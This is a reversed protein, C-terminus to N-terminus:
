LFIYFFTITSTKKKKLLFSFITKNRINLSFLQIVISFARGLPAAATQGHVAITQKSGV